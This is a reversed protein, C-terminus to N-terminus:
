VGKLNDYDPFDNIVSACVNSNVSIDNSNFDLCKLNSKM